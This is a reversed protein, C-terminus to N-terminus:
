RRRRELWFTADELPDVWRGAADRRLARVASSREGRLLRQAAIVGGAVLGHRRVAQAAYASCSPAHPCRPGQFQGVTARYARRPLEAVDADSAPAARTRGADATVPAAPTAFPGVGAALAAALLLACCDM